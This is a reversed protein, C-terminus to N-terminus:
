SNIGWNADINFLNFIKKNILYYFAYFSISMSFSDLLALNLVVWAILLSLLVNANVTIKKIRFLFFITFSLFFFYYHSLGFVSISKSNSFAWNLIVIV